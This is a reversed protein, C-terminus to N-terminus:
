EIYSEKERLTGRKEPMPITPDIGIETACYEDPVLSDAVAANCPAANAKTKAFVLRGEDSNWRERLSSSM